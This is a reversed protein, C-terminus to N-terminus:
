IIGENARENESEWAKHKKTKTHEKECKRSVVSGCGCEVKQKGYQKSIVDFAAQRNVATRRYKNLWLQEYARLHSEDEILYRALLKFKFNRIGHKEMYPYISIKPRRYWRCKLWRRYDELHSDKRRDIPGNTSGIYCIDEVNCQIIYICGYGFM